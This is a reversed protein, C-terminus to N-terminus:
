VVLRSSWTETLKAGYRMTQPSVRQRKALM